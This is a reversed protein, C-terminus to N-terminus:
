NSVGPAQQSAAPGRLEVRTPAKRLLMAVLIGVVLSALAGLPMGGIPGALGLLGSISGLAAAGGGILRARWATGVVLMIWAGELMFGGLVVWGVIGDVAYFATEASAPHQRYLEALPLFANQILVHLILLLVAGLGLTTLLQGPAGTTARLRESVALVTVSFLCLVLLEPVWLAAFLGPQHVLFPLVQAPEHAGAAPLGFSPFVVVQLVLLYIIWVSFLLAAIGGIKRTDV